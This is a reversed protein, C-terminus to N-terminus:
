TIVARIAAAIHAGVTAREEAITRELWKARRGEDHRLRQDEHQKVAYPTDYAVFARLGQRTVTGSGELIHDEIPVTRNATELVYEAADDLGLEAAKRVAALAAHNLVFTSM